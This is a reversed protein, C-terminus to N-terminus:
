ERLQRASIQTGFLRAAVLPLLDSFLFLRFSFFLLIWVPETQIVPVFSSVPTVVQAQDIQGGNQLLLM